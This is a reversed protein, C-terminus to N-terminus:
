KSGSGYAITDTKCLYDLWRAYLTVNKNVTTTNFDFLKYEKPFGAFTGNVSIGFEVCGGAPIDANWAANRVVYQGNENSVVEANWISFFRNDLAFSLYWNEIVSSGTNEVKVNANYGGEWCNALSFVVNFNEGTYNNVTTVGDWGSEANVKETVVTEEAYASVGATSVCMASALIFAEEGVRGVLFM